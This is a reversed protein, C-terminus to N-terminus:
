YAYGLKWMLAGAKETFYDLDEKSFVNKYDGIIGKRPCHGVLKVVPKPARPMKVDYTSAIELLTRGFYDKLNEFKVFPLHNLYESTFEVWSEVPNTILRYDVAFRSNKKQYIRQARDVIDQPTQGQLFQSFTVDQFGKKINWLDSEGSEKWWHWCSVMIDRGDRV